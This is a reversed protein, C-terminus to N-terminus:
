QQGVDAGVACRRWARVDGDPVGLMIIPDYNTIQAYALSAAIGGVIHTKGTM